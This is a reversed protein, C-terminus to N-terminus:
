WDDSPDTGSDDTLAADVGDRWSHGDSVRGGAQPVRGRAAWYADADAAFREIRKAQEAATVTDGPHWAWRYLEL